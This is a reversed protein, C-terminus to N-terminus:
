ECECGEVEFFLNLTVTPDMSQVFNIGNRIESLAKKWVETWLTLLLVWDIWQLRNEEVVLAEESDFIVEPIYDWSSCRM